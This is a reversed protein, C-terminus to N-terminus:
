YAKLMPCPFCSRGHRRRRQRKRRSYPLLVASLVGAFLIYPLRERMTELLDASKQTDADHQSAITTHIVQSSPSLADGFFIGSMMSGILIAPNTGMMIGAPYFIPVVALLAAIPAGAGM